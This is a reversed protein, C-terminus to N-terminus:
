RLPHSHPPSLRQIFPGLVAGEHEVVGLKVLIEIQDELLDLDHTAHFAITPEGIGDEM